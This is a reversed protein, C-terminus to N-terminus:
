SSDAVRLAQEILANVLDPRTAFLFHDGGPIEALRAYPIRQRLYLAVDTPVEAGITGAILLTRAKISPLLNRDDDRSIGEFFGLLTDTGADRSMTRFWEGLRAEEEPPVDRFVKDPDLVLDTLAEIGGERAVEGFRAIGEATFGLPWDPGQRFRPSGNIVVLGTVHEPHKAAYRMALHGASAFGVLLARELGLETILAHVDALNLETVDATGAPLKGSRGYGRLDVFVNRARTDFHRRQYEWARSDLPLGPLWVVAREGSGSIQYALRGGPVDLYHYTM